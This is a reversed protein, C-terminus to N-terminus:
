QSVSHAARVPFIIRVAGYGRVPVAEVLVPDGCSGRSRLCRASPAMQTTGM